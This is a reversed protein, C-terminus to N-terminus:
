RVCFFTALMFQLFIFFLFRGIVGNCFAVFIFILPMIAAHKRTSDLVYRNPKVNMSLLCWEYESLRCFTSRFFLLIFYRLFYLICCVVVCRHMKVLCAMYGFIFLAPSVHLFTLLAFLFYCWCCFCDTERHM